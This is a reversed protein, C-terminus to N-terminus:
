SDKPVRVQKPGQRSESKGKGAQQSQEFSGQGMDCGQDTEIARGPKSRDSESM